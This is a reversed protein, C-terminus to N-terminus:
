IQTVPLELLISSLLAIVHSKIKEAEHVTCLNNFNIGDFLCFKANNFICLLFHARNRFFAFQAIKSNQFDKTRPM